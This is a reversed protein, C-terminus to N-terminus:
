SLSSSVLPEGTVTYSAIGLPFEALPSATTAAHAFSAFLTVALALPTTAVM